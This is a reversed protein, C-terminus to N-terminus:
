SLLKLCKMAIKPFDYRFSPTTILRLGRTPIIKPCSAPYTEVYIDNTIRLILYGDFNPTQYLYRIAMFINSHEYFLYDKIHHPANFFLERLIYLHAISPSERIKDEIKYVFDYVIAKEYGIQSQSNSILSTM